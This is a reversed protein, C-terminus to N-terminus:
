ALVSLSTRTSQRCHSMSGRRCLFSQHGWPALLPQLTDAENLGASPDRQAIKDDLRVGVRRLKKGFDALKAGLCDHVDSATFRCNHWWLCPLPRGPGERPPRAGRPKDRGERRGEDGERWGGPGHRCMQPRPTTPRPSHPERPEPAFPRYVLQHRPAVGASGRDPPMFRSWLVDHIYYHLGWIDM